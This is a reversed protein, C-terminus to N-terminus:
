KLNNTLPALEQRLDPNFEKFYKIQANKRIDIADELNKFYGLHIVKGKVTIRARYKNHEKSFTIGQIGSTKNPSCIKNMGNQSRTANRLNKKRCDHKIGNKHDIIDNKNKNKEYNKFILIHLKIEKNSENMSCVYGEHIHWCYNKLLDYDELDFYFEENKLTYGIGYQGDLNYKNYKKKFQTKKMGCGCSLSAGELVNGMNILVNKNGCDCNCLLQADKRYEYEIIDLIKLKGFKKGIMNEKTYKNPRSRRADRIRCGCSSVDGHELQATSAIKNGNGCSCECFWYDRSKIKGEYKIVTLKGFIKGILDRNIGNKNM